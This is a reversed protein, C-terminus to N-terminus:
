VAVAGAAPTAVLVGLHTLLWFGLASVLLAILTLGIAGLFSTGLMARIALLFGLAGALAVGILGGLFLGVLAAGLVGVFAAFGCRILGSHQAGVVRAGVQMPIAVLLTLLALSLLLGGSFQYSM